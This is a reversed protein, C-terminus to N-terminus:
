KYWAAIKDSKQATNQRKNEINEPSYKKWDHGLANMPEDSEHKM